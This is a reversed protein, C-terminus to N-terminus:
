YGGGAGGIAYGLGGGIANGQALKRKQEEDYWGAQAGRAREVGGAQRFRNDITGQQAQMKRDANRQMAANRAAANYESVRDAGGARAQAAGFDQGRVDGALSGADLLARYQRQQANAATRLGEMGARQAGGQQAVLSALLAKNSGGQGGRAFSDLINGRQAREQGASAAQIEALDAQAEADLGRADAISRLGQLTRLQEARLMPDESLQEMASPGRLAPDELEPRLEVPLDEYMRVLQGYIRRQKERDESGLEDGLLSGFLGGIGGGLEAGSAM